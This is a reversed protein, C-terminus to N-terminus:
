RGAELPGFKVVNQLMELSLKIANFEPKITLYGNQWAQSPKLGGM